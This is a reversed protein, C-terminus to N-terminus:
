GGLVTQPNVVEEVRVSVRIMEGSHATHRALQADGGNHVTRGGSWKDVETDLVSLRDAHALQAEVYHVRGAVRGVRDTHRHGTVHQVPSVSSSPAM